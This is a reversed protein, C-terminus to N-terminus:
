SVSCCDTAKKLRPVIESSTNPIISISKLLGIISLEMIVLIVYVGEFFLIMLSAFYSMILIVACLAGNNKNYILIIFTRKLM